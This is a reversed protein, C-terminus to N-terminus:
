GDIQDREERRQDDQASPAVVPETVKTAPNAADYDTSVPHADFIERSVLFWHAASGNFPAVYLWYLTTRHLMAPIDTEPDLMEDLSARHPLENPTFGSNEIFREVIRGSIPRQMQWASHVLTAAIYAMVGIFVFVVGTTAVVDNRAALGTLMTLFSLVVITAAVVYLLRFQSLWAPQPRPRRFTTM